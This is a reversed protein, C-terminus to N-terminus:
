AIRIQEREYEEAKRKAEAIERARQAAEEKALREAEAKEVESVANGEVERERRLREEEEM